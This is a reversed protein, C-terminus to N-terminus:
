YRTIKDITRCRKYGEHQCRADITVLERGSAVKDIGLRTYSTVRNISSCEKDHVVQIYEKFKLM